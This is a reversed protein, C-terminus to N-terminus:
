DDARAETLENANFAYCAYRDAPFMEGYLYKTYIACDPKIEYPEIAWNNRRHTEIKMRFQNPIMNAVHRHHYTKDAVYSALGKMGHFVIRMSQGLTLERGLELLAEKVKDTVGDSRYGFRDHLELFYHKLEGLHVWDIFELLSQINAESDDAALSRLCEPIDKTSGGQPPAIVYGVQDLSFKYSDQTLTVSTLPGNPDPSILGVSYLERYVDYLDDEDRCLPPYGASALSPIRGTAIDGGVGYILGQLLCAHRASLTTYDLPRLRVRLADRVPTMTQREQEERAQRDRTAIKQKCPDCVPAVEQIPRGAIIKRLIPSGEARGPITVPEKCSPCCLGPLTVTVVDRVLSIATIAPSFGFLEPLESAKYSWEGNSEKSWYARALDREFPTARSDEFVFDPITATQAVQQPAHRHKPAEAPPNLCVMSQLNLRSRGNCNNCSLGTRISADPRRMLDLRQNKGFQQRSTIRVPLECKKCILRECTAVCFSQIQHSKHEHPAGFMDNLETITFTWAGDEELSWYARALDMDPQSTGQSVFVRILDSETGITTAAEALDFNKSEKHSCSECTTSLDQPKHGALLQKLIPEFHERDRIILLEGCAPCCLGPVMVKVVRRISAALCVGIPLRFREQLDETTHSWEGDDEISWYLNAIRRESSSAKADDILLGFHAIKSKEVDRGDEDELADGM